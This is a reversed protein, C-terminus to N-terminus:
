LLSYGYKLPLNVEDFKPIMSSIYEDCYPTTDIKNKKRLENLM